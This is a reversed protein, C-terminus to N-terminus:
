FQDKPFGGFHFFIGRASIPPLKGGDGKRLLGQAESIDTESLDHPTKKAAIITCSDTVTIVAAAAMAIEYLADEEWDWEEDADKDAM